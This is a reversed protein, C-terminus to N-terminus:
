SHELSDLGSIKWAQDKDIEAGCSLVKEAIEDPVDLSAECGMEFLRQQNADYIYAKEDFEYFKLAVM